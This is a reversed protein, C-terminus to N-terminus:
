NPSLEIKNQEPGDLIKRITLILDDARYPKQVFAGTELKGELAQAIDAENYGSSFIVPIDSRINRMQVFAQDGNMNPMTLDLLVLDIKKAQRAFVEVGQIGDNAILVNFGADQLIEKALDRIMQEDDVVLITGRGTWSEPTSEEDQADSGELSRLSVLTDPDSCPFLVTVSTGENPKSEVIINGDHGRVIGLVAAMGLGRGTFKSSFFPDFIKSILEPAMGCGSDTVRLYVYPGEAREEKLYTRALYQTDAQVFGTAITIIGKQNGIAESANSVLNMAIQDFQSEDVNALPLEDALKKELTANKSASTELLNIIAMVLKSIHAPQVSFSGKGAYALMQGTLDAARRAAKEIQSIEDHGKSGAQQHRLALSAFGLISTLLNNFDHAIGGALVGLSELKQAHRVQAELHKQEAESKKQVTLDRIFAVFTSDSETSLRSLSLEAPFTKGRGSICRVEHRSGALTGEDHNRYSSILDRVMAGDDPAIMTESFDSGIAQGSTMQFDACAQENLSTVMLKSDFTIISDFASEFVSRLRKESEVVDAQSEEFHDALRQVGIFSFGLGIFAMALADIFFFLDYLVLNVNELYLMLSLFCFSMMLIGVVWREGPTGLHKKSSLISPAALQVALIPGWALLWPVAADMNNFTFPIVSASAYSLLAAFYWHGKIRVNAYQAATELLLLGRILWALGTLTYLIQTDPSYIISITLIQRLIEAVIAWLAFRLFGFRLRRYELALTIAVLVDIFIVFLLSTYAEM